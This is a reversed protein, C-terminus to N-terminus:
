RFEGGIKKFERWRLSIENNRRKDTLKKLRIQRDAMGRGYIISGIPICLARYVAEVAEPDIMM